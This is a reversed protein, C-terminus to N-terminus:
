ALGLRADGDNEVMLGYPLKTCPITIVFRLGTSGRVLM